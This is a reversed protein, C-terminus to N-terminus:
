LACAAASAQKGSAPEVFAGAGSRAGGGPSAARRAKARFAGASGGDLGRGLYHSAARDWVAMRIQECVWQVFSATPSRLDMSFNTEEGPAQWSDIEPMYWGYETM